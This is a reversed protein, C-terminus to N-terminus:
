KSFPFRLEFKVSGIVVGTVMGLGIVALLRNAGKPLSEHKEVAHLIKSSQASAAPTSHLHYYYAAFPPIIVVREENQLKQSGRLRQIINATDRANDITVGEASSFSVASVLVAVVFWALTFVVRM